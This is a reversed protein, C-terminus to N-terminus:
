RDTETAQAEAVAVLLVLRCLAVNLTDGAATLNRLWLPGSAQCQAQAWAAPNGGLGKNAGGFVGRGKPATKTVVLWDRGTLHALLAPLFWEHEAYGRSWIPAPHLLPTVYRGLEVPMMAAIQDPTLTAVLSADAPVPYTRGDITVVGDSTLSM